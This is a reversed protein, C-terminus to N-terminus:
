SPIRGNTLGGDPIHSITPSHEVTPQRVMWPQCCCCHAGVRGPRRPAHDMVPRGIHTMPPVTTLDVLGAQELTCQIRKTVREDCGLADILAEYPVGQRADGASRTYLEYLFAMQGPEMADFAIM